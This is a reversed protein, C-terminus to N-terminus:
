EVYLNYLIRGGNGAGEVRLEIYYEGEPFSLPPSTPTPSLLDLRIQGTGKTALLHTEKGDGLSGNNNRDLWRGPQANNLQTLISATRNEADPPKKSPDPPLSSATGIYVQLNDVYTLANAQPKLPDGGRAEEDHVGADGPTVDPNFTHKHEYLPVKKPATEGVIVHTHTPLTPDGGQIVNDSTGILHGFWVPATGDAKALRLGLQPNKDDFKAYAKMWHGHNSDSSNGSASM